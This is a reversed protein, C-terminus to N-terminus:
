ARSLLCVEEDWDEEEDNTDKDPLEALRPQTQRCVKGDRVEWRGGIRDKAYKEQTVSEPAVDTDVQFRGHAEYSSRCFDYLEGMKVGTECTFDLKLEPLYPHILDHNELGLTVSFTKSPPQTVFMDAWVGFPRKSMPGYEPADFITKPTWGTPVYSHVEGVVIYKDRPIDKVNMSLCDVESLIDSIDVPSLFMAQRIALNDKLAKRWTQCVNTANVVDEFPLCVVIGCLLENTNLVAHAAQHSKTSAQHRKSPKKRSPAM